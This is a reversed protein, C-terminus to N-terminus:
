SEIMQLGLPTFKEFDSINETALRANTVIAASAIMADVRLHRKRGTENFLRAAEVAQDGTFPIIRGEILSSVISIGEDDVPGCVFEYWSVASTLLEEGEEIWKIVRRSEESRPVLVRILYNTDLLIMGGKGM